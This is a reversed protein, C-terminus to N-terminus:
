IALENSCSSPSNNVFGLTVGVTSVTTTPIDMKEISNLYTGGTGNGGMVYVATSKLQGSGNNARKTSLTSSLTSIAETSITWKLIRNGYTTQDQDGL